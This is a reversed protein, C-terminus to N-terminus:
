ILRMVDFFFHGSNIVNRNASSVFTVLKKDRILCQGRNNYLLTEINALSVSFIKGKFPIEALTSSTENSPAETQVVIEVSDNTTEPTTETTTTTQLLKLFIVRKIYLYPVREQYIQFNSSGPLGFKFTFQTLM